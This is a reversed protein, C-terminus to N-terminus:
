CLRNCTHILSSILPTRAASKSCEIFCAICGCKRDCRISACARRGTCYWITYRVRPNRGGVGGDARAEMGNSWGSLLREPRLTVGTEELVEEAGEGTRDLRKERRATEELADEAAWAQRRRRDRPILLNTIPFLMLALM